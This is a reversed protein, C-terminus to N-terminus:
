VRGLAWGDNLRPLHRLLWAITTLVLAIGATKILWPPPEQHLVAGFLAALAVGLLLWPRESTEGPRRRLRYGVAPACAAGIPALCAASALASVIQDQLAPHAFFEGVGDALDAVWARVEPISINM